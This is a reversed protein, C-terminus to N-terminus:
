TITPPCQDNWCQLVLIRAAPLACFIWKSQRTTFRWSILLYNLLVHILLHWHKRWYSNNHSIIEEGFSQIVICSQKIKNIASWTRLHHKLYMAVGVTITWWTNVITNRLLAASNSILPTQRTAYVVTKTHHPHEAKSSNGLSSFNGHLLCAFRSHLHHIIKYSIAHHYSLELMHYFFLCLPFCFSM